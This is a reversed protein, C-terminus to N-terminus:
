TPGEPIHHSERYISDRLSAPDDAPGMIGGLIVGGGLLLTLMGLSIWWAFADSAKRREWRIQRKMERYMQWMPDERRNRVVRVAMVILSLLVYLVILVLTAHPGFLLCSAIIALLAVIIAM